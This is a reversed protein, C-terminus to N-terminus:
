LFQIEIDKPRNAYVAIAEQPTSWCGFLNPHEDDIPSPNPRVYRGVTLTYSFRSKVVPHPYVAIHWNDGSEEAVSKNMPSASQVITEAKQVPKKIPKDVM